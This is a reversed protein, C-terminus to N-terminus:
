PLVEIRPCHFGRGYNDNRLSIDLSAGGTTEAMVSAAELRARTAIITAHQNQKFIVRLRLHHGDYLPAYNTYWVEYPNEPNPFDKDQVMTITATPLQGTIRWRCDVREPSTEYCAYAKTKCTIKVQKAFVPSSAFIATMFLISKM